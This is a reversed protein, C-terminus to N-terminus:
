ANHRNDDDHHGPDRKFYRASKDSSPECHCQRNQYEERRNPAQRPRTAPLRLDSQIPPANIQRVRLISREKVRWAGGEIPDEITQLEAELRIGAVMPIASRGRLVNDLFLGDKVSAGFEGEKGLFRWRRKSDLLAPSVLILTEIAVRERRTRSGDDFTLFGGAGATARVHFESRAIIDTPRTGPERVAGVGAIASDTDLERYVEQVKPSAQKQYADITKKVISEIEDRSVGPAKENALVADLTHEFAYDLTKHCADRHRPHEVTSM